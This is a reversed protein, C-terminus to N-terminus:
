TGAVVKHPQSAPRGAVAIHVSRFLSRLLSETAARTGGPWYVEIAHSGTATSWGITGKPAGDTTSYRLTGTGVRGVVPVPGEIATGPPAPTHLTILAGESRLEEFAREQSGGRDVVLVKFKLKSTPAVIAIPRGFQRAAFTECTPTLKDRCAVSGAPYVGEMDSLDPLDGIVFRSTVVLAALVAVLASAWKAWLPARFKM